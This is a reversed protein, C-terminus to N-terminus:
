TRNERKRNRWRYLRAAIMLLEVPSELPGVGRTRLRARRREVVEAFTPALQDRLRQLLDAPAMM